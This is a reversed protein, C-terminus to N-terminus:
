WKLDRPLIKKSRTDSISRIQGNGLKIIRDAIKAIEQNHTVIIIATQLETVFKTLIELVKIGTEYDLEGTPEDALIVLPTKALARAIAVRQQEGGSLQSPFHNARNKLGVQDLYHISQQKRDKRKLLELVYEVNEQATLNPLLNFFQFIFGIKEKRIRELQKRNKLQIKDVILSGKTPLDLGGIINLLTTKGSGSPGLIVLLEGKKVELDVNKLATVTNSGSNYIKSVGSLKIITEPVKHNTSDNLNHNVNKSEEILAM